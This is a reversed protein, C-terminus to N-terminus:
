PCWSLIVCLMPPSLHIGIFYQECATTCCRFSSPFDTWGLGPKIYKVTELCTSNTYRWWPEHLPKYQSQYFRFTKNWKICINMFWKFDTLTNTRISHWVSLNPFHTIKKSTKRKVPFHLCIQHFLNFIKNRFNTPGPSELYQNIVRIPSGLFKFCAFWLHTAFSLTKKFDKYLEKESTSLLGASWYSM